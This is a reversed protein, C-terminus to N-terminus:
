IGDLKREIRELRKDMQELVAKVEVAELKELRTDVRRAWYVSLGIFGSGLLPVLYIATAADLM